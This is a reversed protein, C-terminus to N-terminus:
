ATMEEDPTEDPYVMWDESEANSETWKEPPLEALVAEAEVLLNGAEDRLEGTSTCIRGKDEKVQGTMRLLKGIPVPKRYRLSLRATVMFRPPDGTMFVRGTVEDLMSAIVGGHVVGPYGQFHEPVIYEALVEGPATDYFTMQLGYPNKVGCVFCHRSNPQKNM